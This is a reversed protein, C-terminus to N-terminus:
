KIRYGEMENNFIWAVVEGIEFRASMYSRRSAAASGANRLDARASIM